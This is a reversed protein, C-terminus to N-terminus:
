RWVLQLFKAFNTAHRSKVPFNTLFIHNFTSLELLVIMMFAINCILNCAMVLNRVVLNDVYLLLIQPVFALPLGYMLRDRTEKKM